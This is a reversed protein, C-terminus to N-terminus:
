KTTKFMNKIFNKIKNFINEKKYEIMATNSLSINGKDPTKNQFIKDSNYKGRLEEQYKNENENWYKLLEEKENEDAVYNYYLLSILDKSEESINQEELGKTTDIYFDVKSDAALETLKRFVNNPIKKILDNDFYALVTLVEKYIENVEQIEKM